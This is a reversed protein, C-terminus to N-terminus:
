RRERLFALGIMCLCALLSLSPLGESSESDDPEPSADSDIQAFPDAVHVGLTSVGGSEDTGTITVAYDNTGAAICPAISIDVEWSNASTIFGQSSFGCLTYSFSIFEGDPEYFTGRLIFVRGSADWTANSNELANPTHEIVPISNPKEINLNIMFEYDGMSNASAVGMAAISGPKVGTLPLEVTVASNGVDASIMQGMDNSQIQHAHVTISFSNVFGTPTITALISTQDDSLVSELNFLTGFEFSRTEENAVNLEDTLICDATESEDMNEPHTIVWDGNGNLTSSLLSSSFTCDMTWGDVDQGWSQIIDSTAITTQGGMNLAFKTGNSPSDATWVPPTNILRESTTLEIFIFREVDWQSRDFELDLRILVQESTTTMVELSDLNYLEGSLGQNRDQMYAADVRLNEVFPFTAQFVGSTMNTINMALTFNSEGKNPLQVFELNSVDPQSSLHIEMNDTISVPVEKCSTSAGFNTCTRADPHNDPVINVEDLAIGDNAFTFNNWGFEGDKLNKENMGLRTEMDEICLPGFERVADREDTSIFSNNGGPAGDFLGDLNARVIASNSGNVWASASMDATAWDDLIILDFIAYDYEFLDEFTLGSCDPDFGAQRGSTDDVPTSNPTTLRAKEEPISVTSIIVSFTLFLALGIRYTRTAMPNGGSEHELISAEDVAHSTSDQTQPGVLTFRDM